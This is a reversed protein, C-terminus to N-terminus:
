GRAGTRAVEPARRPAAPERGRSRVRAARWSGAIGAPFLRLCLILAVGAVLLIWTQSLGLQADLFHPIVGDTTMLGAFVAGPIMTIGGIYAFAVFQLAVLIGFSDITVKTSAYAYAVGGIGAICSSLAYAAFKTDRVSVGAAAAAPENSRVALMRNGLGSQRVRLVLLAIVTAFGLLWLGLAPSVLGGGIARLGAASGVDMGLITPEPIANGYRLVGWKPNAFGFQEIAIAAALTVVALTVGRVRLASAGALFGTATAVLVALVSAVPFSMGGDTALHSVAFAAIGALPVQLLSVQGVYGTILVLSLGIITGALSVGIAFRYDFPVVFLAVVVAVVCVIAPRALRTPRPASPLHGELLEGRTPLSSGRLWLAAVIVLFTLVASVGPMSVGGTTPFWPKTQAYYLLSQAAGILLGALCTISFSTFRAFIAAGLAPVVQLPLNVTDIQTVAGVLIGVSGAVIAGLVANQLALRETHLGALKASTGNESAARTALGFHSWRYLAWLVASALVVIGTLWFRDAPIRAGFLTVLGQPLVSPIIQSGGGGIMVDLASPPGKDSGGGRLILDITAQATLLVGLSAVLSSLPSSSRLPRFVVLEVVVGFVVTGALALVLAVATAVGDSTLWLFLYAAVMSSAGTALNIVGSGRYSLVVALGIGAILAGTGLGLVAFLLIENMRLPAAAAAVVRDNRRLACETLSTSRHMASAAVNELVEIEPLRSTGSANRSRTGGANIAFANM